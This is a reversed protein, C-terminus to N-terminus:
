GNNDEMEDENAINRLEEKQILSIRAFIPLSNWSRRTTVYEDNRSPWNINEKMLENKLDERLNAYLQCNYLVHEAMEEEQGCACTPYEVLKFASLKGNFDGHGGVIQSM